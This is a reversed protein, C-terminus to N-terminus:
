VISKPSTEVDIGSTRLSRILNLVFIVSKYLQKSGLQGCDNQPAGFRAQRWAFKSIAKNM